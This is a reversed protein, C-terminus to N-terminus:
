PMAWMPSKDEHEWTWQITTGPVSDFVNGSNYSHSFRAGNDPSGIVHTIGNPMDVLVIFRLYKFLNLSRNNQVTEFPIFGQVTIEMYAGHDSQKQVEELAKRSVPLYATKLDTVNLGSLLGTVRDYTGYAVINQIPAYQIRVLSGPHSAYQREIDAVTKYILNSPM